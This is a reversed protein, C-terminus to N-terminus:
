NQYYLMVDATVTDGTLDILTERVGGRIFDVKSIAM